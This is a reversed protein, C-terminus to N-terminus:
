RGDAAGLARPKYNRVARQWAAIAQLRDDGNDGVFHETPKLSYCHAYWGPGPECRDIDPARGCVPCPLISKAM